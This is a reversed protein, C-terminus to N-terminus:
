KGGVRSETSTAETCSIGVLPCTFTGNKGRFVVGDLGVSAIIDGDAVPVRVELQPYVFRFDFSLMDRMTDTGVTGSFAVLFRAESLKTPAPGLLQVGFGGDLYVNLSRGADTDVRGKCMTGKGWIADSIHRDEFIATIMLEGDALSPTTQTADWGRCTRRVDVFGKVQPTHSSPEDGPDASLGAKELRQRVAELLQATFDRPGRGAADTRRRAEERAAEISDIPVTGTPHEYADILDQVAMPPSPLTVRDAGCGAALAAVAALTWPTRSTLM